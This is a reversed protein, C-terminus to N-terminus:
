IIENNGGYQISTLDTLADTYPATSFTSPISSFENFSINALTKNIYNGYCFGMGM